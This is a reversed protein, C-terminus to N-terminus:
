LQIRQLGWNKEQIAKELQLAGSVTLMGSGSVNVTGKLQSIEHSGSVVLDAGNTGEAILSTITGGAYNIVPNM